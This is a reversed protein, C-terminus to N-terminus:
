SLLELSWDKLESQLGSGLQEMLWEKVEKKDASLLLARCGRYRYPEPLRGRALLARGWFLAQLERLSLASLFSALEFLWVAGRDIGEKCTQTLYIERAKEQSLSFGVWRRALGLSFLEMFVSSRDAIHREDVWRYASEAVDLAHTTWEHHISPSLSTQYLSDDKRLEHVVQQFIEQLSLHFPAELYLPSDKTIHLVKMHSPHARALASLALSRKREWFHCLSQFNCYLWLASEQKKEWATLLGRAEPAIRDRWFPQPATNWYVSRGQMTEKFFLGPINGGLGKPDFFFALPFPLFSSAVALYAKRFHLIRGWLPLLVDAKEKTSGFLDHFTSPSPFPQIVKELFPFQRVGFLLLNFLAENESGQRFQTFFASSSPVEELPTAEEIQCGAQYFHRYLEQQIQGIYSYMAEGMTRVKYLGLNVGNGRM